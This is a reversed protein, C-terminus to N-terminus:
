RLFRLESVRIGTACITQMVLRLRENKGAAKLLREYEGKSLEKEETCYVQKQLKMSKVRCEPKGMYILFSNISALMSNISRDAYNKEQLYRKYGIVMDKTVDKEGLFICFARVDRLYKEVTATSKEERILYQHFLEIQKETLKHQNM